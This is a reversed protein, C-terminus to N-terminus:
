IKPICGIRKDSTRESTPATTPQQGNLTDFTRVTFLKRGGQTLADATTSTPWYFYITKTNLANSDAKIKIGNQIYFGYNLLTSEKTLMTGYKPKNVGNETIMEGEKEALFLGETDSMYEGLLNLLPQNGTFHTSNPCYARGSDPYTFPIMVYGILSNQATSGGDAPRNPFNLAYFLSIGNGTTTIQYESNLRDELIKNITMKSGNEPKISFRIDSKDFFSMAGPILELREYEITDKGPHLQEDHCVIQTPNNGVPPLIPAPMENAAYYYYYRTYNARNIVGLNDSTLGYIICTYQNIPAVKLAGVVSQDTPQDKRRIQFEKSQANSGTKFENIKIIWTRNKALSTINVNFSNSGPSINPPLTVTTNGDTATVTCQPSTDDSSLQVTCWNYLNGLKTNLASEPGVQSNVYLFAEPTVPKLSCTTDCDSVIDAKGNICSCFDNKISIANTPRSDKIVDALCLNASGNVRTLLVDAAVGNILSTGAAVLDQKVKALEEVTSIHTGTLCNPTCTDYPAAYILNGEVCGTQVGDGKSFDKVFGKRKALSQDGVCSSLLLIAISLLCALTPFQIKTLFNTKM